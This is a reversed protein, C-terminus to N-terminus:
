GGARSSGSQERSRPSRGRGADRPSASGLEHEVGSFGATMTLVQRLTTRSVRQSMDDAYDPLLDGLTAEVGSIAGEDVAIGVLTSMVSKTVSFVDRYEDRASDFYQEYVTEGDVVALVARIPDEPAVYPAVSAEIRAELDPEEGDPAATDTCGGLWLAAAVVAAATSSLHRAPM